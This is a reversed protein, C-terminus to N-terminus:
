ISRVRDGAHDVEDEVGVVRPQLPAHLAADGSVAVTRVFFALPRKSGADPLLSVQDGRDIVVLVVLDLAHAGPHLAPARHVIGGGCIAIMVNHCRVDTAGDVGGTSQDLSRASREVAPLAARVAARNRELEPVPSLRAEAVLSHRAAISVVEPCLPGQIAAEFRPNGAPVSERM